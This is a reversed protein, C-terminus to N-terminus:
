PREWRDGPRPGANGWRIISFGLTSRTVADRLPWQSPVIRVEVDAVALARLLDGMPEVRVPLVVLDTVWYGAGADRLEFPEHPLLYHLADPRSSVALVGRPCRLTPRHRRRWM